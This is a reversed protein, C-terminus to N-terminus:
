TNHIDYQLQAKTRYSGPTMGTHNKFVNSFYSVNTFGLDSAIESLTHSNIALLEKAQEIKALTIFRKTSYGESAFVIRSIQKESLNLHSAIDSPAISRYLNDAVFDAIIDMRSKVATGNVEHGYGMSRAMAVLLEPIISQIILKYGPKMTLAEQLAQDFLPIVGNADKYPACPKSQFFEQLDSCEEDRESSSEKRPRFKCDLSYEILDEKNSSTQEHYVSPATVYFEGQQISFTNTDTIVTCSGRAIIHFEFSKHAHRPITWDGTKQMVRFWQVDISCSSMECTLTLESLRRSAKNLEHDM